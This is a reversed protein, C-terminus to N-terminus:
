IRLLMHRPPVGRHIRGPTVSLHQKDSILGVSEGWTRLYVYFTNAALKANQACAVCEKKQSHPPPLPSEIRTLPATCTQTHFKKTEM